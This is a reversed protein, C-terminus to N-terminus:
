MVDSVNPNGDSQSLACPLLLLTSIFAAFHQKQLMKQRLVNLHYFSIAWSFSFPVVSCQLGINIANPHTPKLLCKSWTSTMDCVSIRPWSSCDVTSIKTRRRKVYRVLYGLADHNKETVGCNNTQEEGQNYGQNTSNLNLSILSICMNGHGHTCTSLFFSHPWLEEEMWSGSIGRALLWIGSM